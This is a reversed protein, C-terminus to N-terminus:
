EGGGVPRRMVARERENMFATGAREGRERAREAEREREDRAGQGSRGRRWGSWVRATTTTTTIIYYRGHGVVWSVMLFQSRRRRAGALFNGNYIYM